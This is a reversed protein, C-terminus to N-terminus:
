PLPPTIVGTKINYKYITGKVSAIAERLPGTVHAGEKVVLNLPKNFGKPGALEVMKKLNGTYSVISGSKFEWIVEPHSLAYQVDDPITKGLSTM